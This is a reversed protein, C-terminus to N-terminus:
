AWTFTAPNEEVKKSKDQTSKNGQEEEYLIQNILIPEWREREKQYISFSCYKSVGHDNWHNGTLKEYLHTM